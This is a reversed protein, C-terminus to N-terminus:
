PLLVRKTWPHIQLFGTYLDINTTTTMWTGDFKCMQLVRLYIEYPHIFLVPSSNLNGLNKLFSSEYSQLAGRPKQQSCLPYLPGVARKVRGISLLLRCYILLWDIHIFIYVCVCMYVAINKPRGFFVLAVRGSIKVFCLFKQLRIPTEPDPDHTM